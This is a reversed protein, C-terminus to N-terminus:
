ALTQRDFGGDFGLLATHSERPVGEEVDNVVEAAHSGLPGGHQVVIDAMHSWRPGGDKVDDVTHSGHPGGNQVVGASLSWCPGSDEIDEAAQLKEGNEVTADIVRSWALGRLRSLDEISTWTFPWVSRQRNSLPLVSLKIWGSVTFRYARWTCATLCVIEIADLDRETAISPHQTTVSVTRPM